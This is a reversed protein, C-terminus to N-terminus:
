PYCAENLVEVRKCAEQLVAFAEPVHGRTSGWVRASYRNVTQRLLSLAKDVPTDNPDMPVNEILLSRAITDGLQQATQPETGDVFFPERQPFSM